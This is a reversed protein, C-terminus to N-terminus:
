LTKAGAFLFARGVGIFVAKMKKCSSFDIVFKGYMDLKVAQMNKCTIFSSKGKRIKDKENRQM